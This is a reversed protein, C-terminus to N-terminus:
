KPLFTALQNNFLAQQTNKTFALAQAKTHINLAACNLPHRLAADQRWLYCHNQGTQTNIHNLVDGTLWGLNGNRYFDVIPQPHARLLSRGLMHASPAIALYDLVTPAVDRESIFGTLVKPAIYAGVATFPIWFHELDGQLGAGATHDAFALVLSKELIGRNKLAALFAGLEADAAHMMDAHSVHPSDTLKPADPPLIQDHTTNTNIGILMKGHPNQAIKDLVLAYISSDFYGWANQPADPLLTGIDDRGYSYAFGLRQAFSGTGSTEKNSGQFFSGVYGHEQLIEPLCRMDNKILQTQAVSRGLPNPFSCLAAFLGETTRTGGAMMFPASIGQQAFANFHPTAASSHQWKAAWSELLLIFIYQPEGLPKARVAPLPKFDFDAATQIADPLQPDIKHHIFSYYLANYMGSGALLAQRNNGIQYVFDPAQPVGSVGGRYIMVSLIVLSFSSTITPWIQNKPYIKGLEIPSKIVRWSLAAWILIALIFIFPAGHYAHAVLSLADEYFDGTEYSLRRGSQLFYIVDGSGGLNAFFLLVIIAIKLPAVKQYPAMVLAAFLCLLAYASAAALDFRLGWIQSYITENTSLSSPANAMLVVRWIMSLLLFLAFVRLYFQGLYRNM